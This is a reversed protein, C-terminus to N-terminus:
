AALQKKMPLSLTIKHYCETRDCIEIKGDLMALRCLIHQSVINKESSLAKKHSACDISRSEIRFTLYLRENAYKLELFIMEPVPHQIFKFLLERVIRYFGFEMEVSGVLQQKDIVSETSIGTEISIKQLLDELAQGLGFTELVAPSLTKSIDRVNNIALDLLSRSELMMETQLGFHNMRLHVNNINLKVTSLLAGVGNHLEDAMRSYEHEQSCVATYMMKKYQAIMQNRKKIVQQAKFRQFILLILLILILVGAIMENQTLNNEVKEVKQQLSNSSMENAVILNDDWNYHPM